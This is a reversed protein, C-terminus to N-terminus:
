CVTPRSVGPPLCKQVSVVPPRGRRVTMRKVATLYGRRSVVVTVVTGARLRRGVFARLPQRVKTVTLTMTRRPCKPGTCSIAARSGAPAGNLTLKSLITYSRHVEWGAGFTISMKKLADVGDCDDDVGNGPIEPRGPTRGRDSDDCDKDARSGDGDRDYERVGDCNEDVDNNVIEPRGPNVSAQSDDCDANANYGDGDADPVAVSWKREVAAGTNGAPDIARVSFQHGGTTLGGYLVPSTCASFPAGDFACQFSGPENAAFVFTATTLTSLVGDGPTRADAVLSVVPPTADVRWRREAPLRDFYGGNVARVQFTHAGDPLDTYTKGAGACAIFADGDLRCEFANGAVSTYAFVATRRNTLSGDV